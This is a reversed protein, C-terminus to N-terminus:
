LGSVRLHSPLLTGEITTGLHRLIEDPDDTLVVASEFNKEKALTELLPWLPKSKSDPTATTGDGDRNWYGRGMLVMPTPAVPNGTRTDRPRYYNQTADQFIEQVTGANGQAFLLGGNAITVLGDERLSNYFFKGIHSAFMNPPEHGYLWTPVGLSHASESEDAEWFGLIERRVQTATTLWAHSKFSPASALIQLSRELADEGYPSLFAGLNAAEMLGPGGGTVILRGGRTLARALTTITRFLSGPEDSRLADHGGMVGVVPRGSASLFGSVASEVFTDHTRAAWFEGPSLTRPLLTKKDIFWAYARYDPTSRWSDAEDPDFGAYLDRVKYLRNPFVNLPIGEISDVVIAGRKAVLAPFGDSHLCGLFCLGELNGDFFHDEAETLDVGVILAPDFSRRSMHDQLGTTTTIFRM